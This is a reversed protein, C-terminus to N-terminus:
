TGLQEMLGIRDQPEMMVVLWASANPEGVREDASGGEGDYGGGAGSQEGTGPQRAPPPEAQLGADQEADPEHVPQEELAEVADARVARVAHHDPDDHDYQEGVEGRVVEVAAM